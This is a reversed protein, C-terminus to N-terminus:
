KFQRNTVSRSLPLLYIVPLSAAIMLRTKSVPIIEVCHPVIKGFEINFFMFIRTKLGLSVTLHLPEPM